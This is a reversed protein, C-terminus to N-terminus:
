KCYDADWKDVPLKYDQKEEIAETIYCRIMKIVFIKEKDGVSKPKDIILRFITSIIEKMPIVPM